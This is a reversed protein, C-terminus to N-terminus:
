AKRFMLKEMLRPKRVKVGQLSSTRQKPKGSPILATLRWKKKSLGFNRALIPSFPWAKSFKFSIQLLFLHTPM